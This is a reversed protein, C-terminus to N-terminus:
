AARACPSRARCVRTEWPPSSSLRRPSSRAADTKGRGGGSRPLTRFAAWTPGGLGPLHATPPGSAVSAAQVLLFHRGTQCITSRHSVISVTPPPSPGLVTQLSPMSVDRKGGACLLFHSGHNALVAGPACVQPARIERARSLHLLSGSGLGHREKAFQCPRPQRVSQPVETDVLGPHSGVIGGDSMQRLLQASRAGALAGGVPPITPM